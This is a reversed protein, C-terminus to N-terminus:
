EGAVTVYGAVYAAADVVRVDERIIGRYLSMDQEFANFDTVSATDSVKISLAQRDFLCVGAELDGVIFPVKTESTALVSNPVVDVPVMRAGIALRMQMPNAPDPSLLYRGQTDKLTDLWQLGDDNTVVHATPAFAQGLTVNIAKKIGDYGKLDVGPTGIAALINANDTARAEDGLWDTIAAVLTADADALLEDTVPMYGAYKAIAYDVKEFAMAETQGIKAGEGVKAFGKKASRKLFTRSGSMFRTPEVRVLDRLSFEADRRENVRAQIDKPVAYGGDAGVGETQAAKSAVRFGARAAKAFEAVADPAKAAAPESAFAKAAEDRERADIAELVALEKNLGEIEGLLAQAKDVDKNAEDTVFAKAMAAKSAIAEKIEQIRNM